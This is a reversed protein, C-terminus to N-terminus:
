DRREAPRPAYPGEWELYDDLSGRRDFDPHPQARSDGPSRHSVDAQAGALGGTAAQGPAHSAAEMVSREIAFIADDQVLYVNDELLRAQRNRMLRKLLGHFNPSVDPPLGKVDNSDLTVSSGDRVPVAIRLLAKAARLAAPDSERDAIEVNSPVSVRGANQQYGFIETFLKLFLIFLDQVVAIGLALSWDRAGFNFLARRALEFDNAELTNNDFFAKVQASFRALVDSSVGADRAVDICSTAEERFSRLADVPKISGAHVGDRLEQAKRGLGGELTCDKDFKMRATVRPTRANVAQVVASTDTGCAVSDGPNLSSERLARLVVECRSRAADLKARVPDALVQERLAALQEVPVAGNDGIMDLSNPIDAQAKKIDAL